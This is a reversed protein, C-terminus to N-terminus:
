TLEKRQKCRFPKQYSQRVGLPCGCAEDAAHNPSCGQRYWTACFWCLLYGPAVLCVERMRQMALAIDRQLVHLQSSCSAGAALYCGVARADIADLTPVFTSWLVDLTCECNNWRHVRLPSHMRTACCSTWHRRHSTIHPM